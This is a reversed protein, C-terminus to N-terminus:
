NSNEKGPPTLKAAYYEDPTLVTGGGFYDILWVDTIVLKAIVWDHDEPWLRMQPHREYFARKVSAFEEGNGGPPVEVLTGSLTLRACVPNEPDGTRGSAARVITCATRVDDDSPLCHYPTAAESLTLSAAPNKAADQFSQDMFTGYFYPTGTANACSGDVFSYVNGFPMAVGTRGSLSSLVGWDLSHVM